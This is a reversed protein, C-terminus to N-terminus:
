AYTNSEVFGQSHSIEGELDYIKVTHSNLSDAFSKADIASAFFNELTLLEGNYWHQSVVKHHHHKAM